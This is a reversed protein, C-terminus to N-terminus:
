SPREEREAAKRRSSGTDPTALDLLGQPVRVTIRGESESIALVIEAAMPILHQRGDAGRVGLLDTGPTALVDDVHGIETGDVECVM